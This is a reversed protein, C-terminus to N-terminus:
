GWTCTRSPSHRRSIRTRFTTVVTTTLGTATYFTRSHASTLSDCYAYARDLLVSDTTPLPAPAWVQHEAEYALPLLNREWTHPYITAM